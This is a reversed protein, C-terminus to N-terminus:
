FVEYLNKSIKVMKKLAKAREVDEPSYGNKTGVKVLKVCPIALNRAYVNDHMLPLIIENKFGEMYPIQAMKEPNNGTM